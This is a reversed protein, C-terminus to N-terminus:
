RLVRSVYAEGQVIQRVGLIMQDTDGKLIYGNAGAELAKEVYGREGHGSLMALLLHPHEDRLQRALDIGSFDPLSVDILVLDVTDCTTALQELAEAGTTASGGITFDAESEFLQQLVQSIVPHDEVLFIRAIHPVETM